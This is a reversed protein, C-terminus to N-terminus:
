KQSKTVRLFSSGKGECLVKMLGNRISGIVLYLMKESCSTHNVINSSAKLVRVFGHFTRNKSDLM